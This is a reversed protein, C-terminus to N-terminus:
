SVDGGRRRRATLPSGEHWFTYVVTGVGLTVIVIGLVITYIM